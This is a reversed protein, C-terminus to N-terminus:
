DAGRYLLSIAALPSLEETSARIQRANRAVARGVAVNRNLENRLRRAEALAKDAHQLLDDRVAANM